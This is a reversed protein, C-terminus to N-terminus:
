KKWLSNLGLIIWELGRFYRSVWDITRVLERSTVLNISDSFYIRFFRTYVRNHGIAPFPTSSVDGGIMKHPAYVTLKDAILRRPETGPMMLEGFVEKSITLEEWHASIISHRIQESMTPTLPYYGRLSLVRPLPGERFLKCEMTDLRNFRYLWLGVVALANFSDLMELSKLVLMHDILLNIHCQSLDIRLGLWRIAAESTGLLRLSSIDLICRQAPTEITNLSEVGGPDAFDLNYVELRQASITGFAALLKGLIAPNVQSFSTLKLTTFVIGDVLKEPISEATHQRLFIERTQSQEKLVYARNGVQHTELATTHYLSRGQSFFEITQETYPSVIYYGNDGGTESCNALMSLVLLCLLRGRALYVNM